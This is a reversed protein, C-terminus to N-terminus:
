KREESLAQKKDASSSTWSSSGFKGYDENIRTCRRHDTQVREDSSASIRRLLSAPTKCRRWRTM